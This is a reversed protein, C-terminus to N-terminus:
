DHKNKDDVEVLNKARDIFLVGNLHDLEHQIIHSILGSGKIMFTEGTRDWAQLVVSYARKVTGRQGAVSLCGQELNEKRLSSSKIVPNVIVIPTEDDTIIAIRLPQHVQVAAIGIGDVAWMTEIMDDILQQIQPSLLEERTVKRSHQRLLPDPLKTIPLINAM